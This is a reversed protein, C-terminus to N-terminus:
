RVDVIVLDTGTGDFSIPIAVPGGFNGLSLSVGPEITTGNFTGTSAGQNVVTVTLWGALVTGPGSSNSTTISTVTFSQPLDEIAKVTECSANFVNCKIRSLLQNSSPM